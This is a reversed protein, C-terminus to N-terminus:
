RLVVQFSFCCVPNRTFGLSTFVFLWFCGASRCQQAQAPTTSKTPPSYVCKSSSTFSLLPPISTAFPQLTLILKNLLYLNGTFRMIHRSRTAKKKKQPPPNSETSDKTQVSKKRNTTILRVTHQRKTKVKSLKVILQEQQIVQRNM